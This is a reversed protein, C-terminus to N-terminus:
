KDSPSPNATVASTADVWASLSNKSPPPPHKVFPAPKIGLKLEECFNFFDRFSVMRQSKDLDAWTKGHEACKKFLSGFEAKVRDTRLEGSKCKRGMWELQGALMRLDRGTLKDDSIAGEVIAVCHALEGDGLEHRCELLLKDQNRRANLWFPIWGNTGILIGLFFTITTWPISSEHTTVSKLRQTARDLLDREDKTLEQGSDFKDISTAVKGWYPPAQAQSIHASFFVILVVMLMRAIM